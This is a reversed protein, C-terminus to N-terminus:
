EDELAEAGHTKGELAEITDGMAAAHEMWERMLREREPTEKMQMIRAAAELMDAAAELTRGQLSDEAQAAAKRQRKAEAEARDAGAEANWHRYVTAQSIGTAAVCDAVTGQPNEIKWIQVANRKSKRGNHADWAEGRRQARIDRIARAEELHEAQKQGNRKNAPITIGTRYEIAARPYTVWRDEYAELADQIDDAGFHNDEEQTLGEMHELLNFCDRELEEQTVPTPNHKADYQGCKRAYVALMMCCYYRHGVTAGELIKEKWWDYLRRNVAWAGRPEGRVIRREYWDPYKAAAESLSTHTKKWKQREAARKAKYSDSVFSNLYDLTVREGTQFARVRDGNKTITGPMRFGQYIGEQQIDFVSNINVITDHWILRTLERKYEQLEYAVDPFLAVPKELVYYLHLGTGSSVIFTPKPIRKVKQIHREWLNILGTPQYRGDILRDVDVALAYMMRAHEATAQKGVYSLPRCICFDDSQTAEDIADLEDTLTYRYVKTRYRKRKGDWQKKDAAIRCVVGTYKGKTLAGKTDLEGAPFIYRYFEKATVEPFLIALWSSLRNGM